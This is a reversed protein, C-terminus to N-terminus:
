RSIKNYEHCRQSEQVYSLQKYFYDIQYYLRNLYNSCNKLVINWIHCLLKHIVYTIFTEFYGVIILFCDKLDIEIHKLM